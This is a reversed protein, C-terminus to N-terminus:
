RCEDEGRAEEGRVRKLCIWLCRGHVWRAGGEGVVREAAVACGEAGIDAEHAAIDAHVRGGVRKEKM